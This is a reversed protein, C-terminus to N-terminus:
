LFCYAPFAATVPGKSPDSAGHPCQADPTKDMSHGGPRARCRTHSLLVIFVEDM